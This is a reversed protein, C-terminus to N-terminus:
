LRNERRLRMQVMSSQLCCGGAAVRGRAIGPDENDVKLRGLSDLLIQRLVVLEYQM